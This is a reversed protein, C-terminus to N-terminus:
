RYHRYNRYPDHRYTRYHRPAYRYDYHRYSRRSPAIRISPASPVVVYSEYSQTEPMVVAAPPPLPHYYCGNMSLIGILAALGLLMKKTKM